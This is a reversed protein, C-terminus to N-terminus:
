WFGPVTGKPSDKLSQKCLGENKCKPNEKNLSAVWDLQQEITKGAYDLRIEAPFTKEIQELCWCDSQFSKSAQTAFLQKRGTHTLYRDIGAAMTWKQKPDGLEVAQKSWLFTQFYHDSFDSHQYVLAAAAYDRALSFCGEGYIEGVRKRRILDRSAVEAMQEQTLHFWDKRDDQDADVIKQLEESRAKLRAQDQACPKPFESKAQSLSACSACVLVSTLFTFYKNKM